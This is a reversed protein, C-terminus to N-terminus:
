CKLEHMLCNCVQEKVTECPFILLNHVSWVMHNVLSLGVVTASYERGCPLKCLEISRCKGFLLWFRILSEPKSLAPRDKAIADSVFADTAINDIM